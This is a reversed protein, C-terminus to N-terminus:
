GLGLPSAPSTTDPPTGAATSLPSCRSPTRSTTCGSTAARPGRPRCSSRPTITSSCGPTTASRITRPPWACNSRTRSVDSCRRLRAARTDLWTADDVLLRIRASRDGLLLQRLRKRRTSRRCTSRRCTATCRGCRETGSRLAIRVAEHLEERSTILVRQPAPDGIVIESPKMASDGGGLQLWGAVYWAHLLAHAPSRSSRLAPSALARRDALARLTEGSGAPLSVCEGNIGIEGGAYLMRTAGPSNSDAVPPLGAFRQRAVRAPPTARLRGTGEARDPLSAPLAAHRTTDPRTRRLSDHIRGVMGAPLAAPRRTPRLGATPTDGPAAAHDAFDTLWPELLEQYTPARFGISYTLCEGVATGDHAVGPPLYLM